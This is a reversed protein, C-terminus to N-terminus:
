NDDEMMKWGLVRTADAGFNPSFSYLAAASNVVQCLFSSRMRSADYRGSCLGSPKLLEPRCPAANVLHEVISLYQDTKYIASSVKAKAINFSLNAQTHADSQM